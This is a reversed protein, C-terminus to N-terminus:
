TAGTPRVASSRSMPVTSIAPRFASLSTTLQRGALGGRLQRHLAAIINVVARDHAQSAGTMMKLPLVPFGDVLEYLRDQKAQWAFFAEASMRQLRPEAM